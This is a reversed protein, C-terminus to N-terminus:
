ASMPLGTAKRPITDTLHELIALVIQNPVVTRRAYLLLRHIPSPLTRLAPGDHAREKRRTPVAARSGCSTREAPIRIAATAYNRASLRYNAITKATTM